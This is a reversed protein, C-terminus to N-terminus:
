KREGREQQYPADRPIHVIGQPGLLYDEAFRGSVGRQKAEAARARLNNLLEEAREAHVDYIYDLNAQVVPARDCSALCKVRQLTFMGDATTQEESIGLTAKLAAILEEAGVYCCPVDDCVQIVWTGVPRDYFLTYFGVVEFVQTPPLELIEAVERIAEPSLYGYTDQALYLLPLVASRKSPYRGIITEIEAQHTQLLM